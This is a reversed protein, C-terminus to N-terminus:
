PLLAGLAFLLALLLWLWRVSGAYAALRAPPWTPDRVKFYAAASVPAGFWGCPHLLEDAGPAAAAAAANNNGNGRSADVAVGAACLRDADPLEEGHLTVKQNNQNTANTRTTSSPPPPLAARRPHQREARARSGLGVGVNEGKRHVLDDLRADRGLAGAPLCIEITSICTTTPPAM